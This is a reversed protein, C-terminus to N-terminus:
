HNQIKHETVKQKSFNNRSMQAVLKPSRIQKKQYGTV